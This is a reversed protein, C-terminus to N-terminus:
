VVRGEIRSGELRGDVGIRVREVHATQVREIGSVM